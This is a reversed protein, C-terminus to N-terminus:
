LHIVTIYFLYNPVDLLIFYIVPELETAIHMKEFVMTM